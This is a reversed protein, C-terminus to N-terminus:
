EGAPTKKEEAYVGGAEEDLNIEFIDFSSERLGSVVADSLGLYIPQKYFMTDRAFLFMKKNTISFPHVTRRSQNYYLGEYTGVATGREELTLIRGYVSFNRSGTKHVVLRRRFGGPIVKAQAYVDIVEFDSSLGAPEVKHIRYFVLMERNINKRMFNVVRANKKPDVSFKFRRVRPTYCTEKERSCKEGGDFFAEEAEGEWSEFLLGGSEFKVLRIIKRGEAYTGLAFLRDQPWLIAIMPLLFLPILPISKRQSHYTSFHM